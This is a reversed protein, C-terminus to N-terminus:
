KSETPTEESYSGSISGELKFGADDKASINITANNGDVKVQIVGDVIPTRVDSITSSNKLKGYWTGVLGDGMFGPLFKDEYSESANGTLRVYAGAPSESNANFLEIMFLHNDKVAEIFWNQMGVNYSDGYNKAVIKAGKLDFSFDDAISSLDKCVSLDGEYTVRHKEGNSMTLQIDIKNDSVVIEGSEIGISVGKSKCGSANKAFTGSGCSNEADFSYTGNPIIPLAENEPALESYCDFYYYTGEPDYQVKGESDTKLGKDSLFLWYNNTESYETGYFEGEFRKAKFEEDFGDINGAKQKVTIAVDKAHPYKLTVKAERADGENAMATIVLESNYQVTAEFWDCNEVATVSGGQPTRISFDIVMEGGIRTFEVVTSKPLISSKAAVEEEGNNCATFVVTVLALLTFLKKM